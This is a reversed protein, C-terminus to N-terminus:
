YAGASPPYVRKLHNQTDPSDINEPTVLPELLAINKQVPKGTLANNVQETADLGQGVAEQLFLGDLKRDRVLKVTTPSGDATALAVKGTLGREGLVQAAGTGAEDYMGYIGKIDPHATLLDNTEAVAEGVTLGKTQIVQVLDCGDAQFAEQAGALYKQANERDQPLSLMGVKNGGLQKAKTCVFDGEAKGTDHNNATVASTYDTQGPAPGIGTFAIPINNQKALQLLPPTSNSSVPGIVIASVGATIASRMNALQQSENNNANYSQYQLGLENAKQEVGSGVNQWYAIGLSPAFYAVTHKGNGGAQGSAPAAGNAGNGSGCGALAALTLAAAAVCAVRPIPVFRM